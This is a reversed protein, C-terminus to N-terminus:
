FSQCEHIFEQIFIKFNELNVWFNFAIFYGSIKGNTFVGTPMKLEVWLTNNNSKFVDFMMFMDIPYIDFIIEEEEIFNDICNLKSLSNIIHNLNKYSIYRDNESSNGYDITILETKLLIQCLFGFENKAIPSLEFLLNNERNNLIAM